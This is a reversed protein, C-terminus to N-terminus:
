TEKKYKDKDEDEVKDKIKDDETSVDKDDDDESENGSENPKIVEKSDSEKGGEKKEKSRFSSGDMKIVSKMADNMASFPKDKDKDKDKNLADEKKFSEPNTEEGADDKLSFDKDEIHDVLLKIEDVQSSIPTDSEDLPGSSDREETLSSKGKGFDDFKLKNAKDDSITKFVSIIQEYGANEKIDLVAKKINDIASFAVIGLGVDLIINGEGDKFTLKNRM